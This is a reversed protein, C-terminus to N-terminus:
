NRLANRLRQWQAKTEPRHQSNEIAARAFAACCGIFLGVMMFLLSILARSPKDAKKPLPAPMAIVITQEQQKLMGLEREISQKVLTKYTHIFLDKKERANVASAKSDQLLLVANEQMKQVLQKEGGQLIVSSELAAIPLAYALFENQDIDEKSGQVPISAIEAVVDAKAIELKNIRQSVTSLQMRKAEATIRQATENVYKQAATANELKLSLQIQGTKINISTTYSGELDNAIDAATILGEQDLRKMLPQKIAESQALSLVTEPAIGVEESKNTIITATATFLRSKIAYAYTLGLATFILFCAVILRRNVVLVTLLEILSFEDQEETYHEAPTM